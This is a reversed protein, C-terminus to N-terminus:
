STPAPIERLYDETGDGEIAPQERIHYLAGILCRRGSACIHWRTWRKGGDFFELMLDIVQLAKAPNGQAM